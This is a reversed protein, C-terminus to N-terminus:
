GWGRDNCLTLSCAGGGENCLTLMVHGVGKIVYHWLFM